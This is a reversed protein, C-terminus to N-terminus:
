PSSSLTMQADGLLLWDPCLSQGTFILGRLPPEPQCFQGWKGQFTKLVDIQGPVRCVTRLVTPTAEPYQVNVSNKRWHICTDSDGRAGHLARETGM